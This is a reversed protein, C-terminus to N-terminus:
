RFRDAFGFREELEMLLLGNGTEDHIRAYMEEAKQPDRKELIDALVKRVECNSPFVELYARCLAELGDPDAEILGERMLLERALIYEPVLKEGEYGETKRKLEELRRDQYLAAMETVDALMGATEGAPSGGAGFAAAIKAAAWYRGSRMVSDIWMDITAPELGAEEAGLHRFLGINSTLMDTMETVKRFDGRDYAEKLEDQSEALRSKMLLRISSLKERYAEINERYQMMRLELIKRSRLDDHVKDWDLFNELDESYNNYSLSHHSFFDHVEQETQRPIMYWNDGYQLRLCAEAGGAVPMMRGEFEVMRTEEFWSKRYNRIKRGWFRVVCEDCDGEAYSELRRKLEGIVTRKGRRVCEEKLAIVEDALSVTRPNYTFADVLTEQYLLLDRQYEELRSSPIDDMCMVDILTGMCEGRNFMGTKLFSTDRRNSFQAYPRYYEDSLESSVLEVDDWPLRDAMSLMKEYNERDMLLDVDNDWPVFGKHRLAGIATGAFLYYKIDNDELFDAVKQLM